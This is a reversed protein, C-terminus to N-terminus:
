TTLPQPDRCLSNSFPEVKLVMFMSHLSVELNLNKVFINSFQSQGLSHAHPSPTSQDLISHYVEEKADWVLQDLQPASAHVLPPGVRMHSTNPHQFQAQLENNERRLAEIEDAHRKRIKSEVTTRRQIEDLEKM